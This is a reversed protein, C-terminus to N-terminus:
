KKQMLSTKSDLTDLQRANKCAETSLLAATIAVQQELYRELMDMSINWRMAVNIILKHSTIELMKQNEMLVATATASRHFFAVVKRVLYDVSALCM